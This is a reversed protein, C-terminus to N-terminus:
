KMVFVKSLPCMDALSNWLMIRIEDEAAPSFNEATVQQEGAEVSLEVFECSTMIGKHYSAFVVCVNEFRIPSVITVAGDTYSTVEIMDPLITDAQWKAWFM